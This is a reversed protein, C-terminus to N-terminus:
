GKTWSPAKVTAAATSLLLAIRFAYFQAIQSRGREEIRVRGDSGLTLLGKQSAHDLMRRLHIRSFIIQTGSSGIDVGVSTLQVNDALWLPNEEIPGDADYEDHDHDADEAHEHKWGKGVAHEAMTHGAPKRDDQANAM